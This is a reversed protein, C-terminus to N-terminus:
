NKLMLLSCRWHWFAQKQRKDLQKDSGTVLAM